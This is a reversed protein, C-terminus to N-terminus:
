SPEALPEPVSEWEFFGVTGLATQGAARALRARETAQSTRFFERVLQGLTPNLLDLAELLDKSRPQWRKAAWFAYRAVEELARGLILSAGDPDSAAIDLGDELLAAAMYRRVTLGLEDIAPGARLAEAALARLRALEGGAVYVVHGTALMHATIPRGDHAEEAFYREIRGLPNVFIEAPVGAFYRQVRQRFSRGVIVSNVVYIDLDSAPSGHGRLISGAAVVGLPHYRGFIYDVAERLARAHPEDLAPWTLERADNGAAVNGVPM